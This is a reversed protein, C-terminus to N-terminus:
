EPLETHQVNPQLLVCAAASFILAFGIADSLNPREGVLWASGIVGVVPVLLSGLSATMAPLREVVVFWLFYALGMGIFGNYGIWVAIHTPLSWLQPLGEFWLMGTVLILWGFLLQWAAAALTPAAIKARKLYVTGAAWSWACGLALFAGLPFGTRALPGILIALGAACLGLAVLKIATLEEKLMIRALLSAWIPMSYAIVIARSTTGYVQAYASCVNFIAVNFFGAILIKSRESRPIILPVRGVAAAAFLTFTGLGIGIARLAWPGLETLIIRAAVWNFGWILGILLVMLKASAAADHRTGGTV